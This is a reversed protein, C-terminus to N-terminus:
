KIIVKVTQRIKLTQVKLLYLGSQINENVQYEGQVNSKQESSISNGTLDCLSVVGQVPSGDGVLINMTRNEVPNPYVLVGPNKLGQKEVLIINSHTFAGGVDVNRLRYYAKLFTTNQDLFTYDIRNVSNGHAAMKGISTFEHGNTSKEIQFYDANEESLTTWSLEVGEKTLAGDFSALTIPLPSLLDVSGVYYSDNNLDTALTLGTRVVTPNSTTGGNTGATGITSGSQTLRLHNVDTITGFGTGEGRVDWSTGGGAISNGSSVKWFSDSRKLLLTATPNDTFSVNSATALSTHSLKLTGGGTLASTHGVFFPRYDASSGIPFHGAVNGLAFATTTFWRTVNGSYFRGATYSLTGASAASAGLTATFGNLNILGSMMTLNSSVNINNTTINIGSSNNITLNNFINATSGSITQASSGVLKVGASASTSNDSFTGNNTFNGAISLSANAAAAITLTTAPFTNSITLNNSLAATGAQVTPMFAVSSANTITVDTAANPVGGCWNSGTAWDISTAGIWGGTPLVNVKMAASTSTCPASSTVQVKYWTTQTLTPTVYTSNTSTGSANAYTIGDISSKWQFTPATANNNSTLTGASTSSCITKSIPSITNTFTCSLTTGSCPGTLCDNRFGFIDSSGTTTITGTTDFTGGGALNVSGVPASYNGNVLVAGSVSISGGGNNNNTFTGNVILTGDVIITSGNNIDLPGLILTAGAKVWLTSNDISALGEFTTTGAWIILSGGATLSTLTYATGGPADTVNAAVPTTGDYGFNYTGTTITINQDITLPNSVNVTGTAAPVAGGSWVSPDSWNGSTTTNQALVGVSILVLGVLAIRKM